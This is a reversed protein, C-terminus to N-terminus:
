KEAISIAGMDGIFKNFEVLLILDNEEEQNWMCAMNKLRKIDSHKIDKFVPM